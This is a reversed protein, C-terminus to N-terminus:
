QSNFKLLMGQECLELDKLTLLEDPENLVRSLRTHVHSGPDVVDILQKAWSDAVTRYADKDRSIWFLIQGMCGLWDPFRAEDAIKKINALASVRALHRWKATDLVM